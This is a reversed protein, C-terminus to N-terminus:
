RKVFKNSMIPVKVPAKASPKAAMMTMGSFADATTALALVIACKM